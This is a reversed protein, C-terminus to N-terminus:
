RRRAELRAAIRLRRALIREQMLDSNISAEGGSLHEEEEEMAGLIGSPTNM